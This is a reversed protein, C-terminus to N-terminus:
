SLLGTSTQHKSGPTVPLLTALVVTAGLVAMAAGTAAGHVVMVMAEGRVVMASVLDDGTSACLLRKM